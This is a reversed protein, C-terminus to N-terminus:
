CTYLCHQRHLAPQLRGSFTIPKYVKLLFRASFMSKRGTKKTHYAICLYRHGTRMKLRHKNGPKNKICM